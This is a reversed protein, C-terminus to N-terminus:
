KLWYTQVYGGIGVGDRMYRLLIEACAHSDSDAKHHDLTIGYLECMDNLKHSKGPLVARGIRVTCTYDARDKWTIGYSSLCQKLVGM